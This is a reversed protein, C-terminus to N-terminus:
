YLKTTPEGHWPRPITKRLEEARAMGAEILPGLAEPRNRKIRSAISCTRIANMPERDRAERFLMRWAIAEVAYRDM